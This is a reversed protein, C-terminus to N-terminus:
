GLLLRPSLLLHLRAQGPRASSPLRLAVLGAKRLALRGPPAGLLRTALDSLDPEHGVLLLRPRSGEAAPLAELWPPLAALSDGGPALSEALELASALGAAVALEATERARRLPSAILRDAALGRSALVRLVAETRERGEPTLARAADPIAGGREEAIGHRLLLLEVPRSPPPATAM